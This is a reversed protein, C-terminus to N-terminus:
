NTEISMIGHAMLIKTIIIKKNKLAKKFEEIDETTASVQNIYIM